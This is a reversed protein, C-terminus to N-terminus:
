PLNSAIKLEFFCADCYGSDPMVCCSKCVTQNCFDCVIWNRDRTEEMVVVSVGGVLSSSVEIVGVLQKNCKPCNELLKNHPKQIDTQNIEQDM